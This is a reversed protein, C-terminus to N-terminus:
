SVPQNDGSVYIVYIYITIYRVPGIFLLYERVGDWQNKRPSGGIIISAGFASGNHGSTEDHM